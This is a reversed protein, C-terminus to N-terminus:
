VLREEYAALHALFAGRIIRFRAADSEADPHALRARTSTPGGVGRVAFLAPTLPGYTLGLCRAFFHMDLPAWAGAVGVAPALRQVLAGGDDPGFHARGLPLATGSSAPLDIYGDDNIAAAILFVPHLM